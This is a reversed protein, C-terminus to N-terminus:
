KKPMYKEIRTCLALPDRILDCPRDVFNMSKNHWVNYKDTPFKRPPPYNIKYARLMCTKPTEARFNYLNHIEAGLLKVLFPQVHWVTDGTIPHQLTPLEESYMDLYRTIVGYDYLYDFAIMGGGTIYNRCAGIYDYTSKITMKRMAKFPIEPTFKFEPFVARLDCDSVPIEIDDDDDDDAAITMTEMADDLVTSTDLSNESSTSSSSPQPPPPAVNISDVAIFLPILEGKSYTKSPYEYDVDTKHVFIKDPRFYIEKERMEKELENCRVLIKALLRDTETRDMLRLSPLDCLEDEFPLRLLYMFHSYSWSKVKIVSSSASAPEVVSATAM